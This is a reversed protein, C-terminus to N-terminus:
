QAEWNIRYELRPGQKRAYEHAETESEFSAARDKNITLDGDTTLYWWGAGGGLRVVVRIVTDTAIWDDAAMDCAVLEICTDEDWKKRYIRRGKALEALAAELKMM